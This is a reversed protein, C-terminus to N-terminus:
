FCCLGHGDMMLERIKQKENQKRTEWKIILLLMAYHISCLGHVDVKPKIPLM